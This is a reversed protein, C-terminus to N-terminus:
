VSMREYAHGHTTALLAHYYAVIRRAVSPWAYQQVKELGQRRLQQCLHQDALLTTIGRALDDSQCPVTLLGDQGHEVVTTYGAIASAVVPVGSAMAELLVIGMSEGGTAPSCFVRASAFYRPLVEPPVYGPFLVDPWGQKQVYRQLDPRLHGDGVFLFRTDPCLARVRPIAQVLYRAGKRRDFRGVFLINQKGDLLEPLPPVRPHFRELDIGNPILQYDAPFFREVFQRAVSSVAIQGSLRRFSARLFPALATYSLASVSLIQATPYAHFTGVTTTNCARLATLSVQCFRSM